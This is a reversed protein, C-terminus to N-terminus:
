PSLSPSWPSRCYGMKESLSSYDQCTTGCIFFYFIHVVLRLSIGTRRSATSCSSSKSLSLRGQSASCERDSLGVNSNNRWNQSPWGGPKSYSITSYLRALQLDQLFIIIFPTHGPLMTLDVPLRLHDHHRHPLSFPSIKSHDEFLGVAGSGETNDAKVKRNGEKRGEKGRLLILIVGVSM